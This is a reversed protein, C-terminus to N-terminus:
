QMSDFDVRCPVKHRLIVYQDIITLNHVELFCLLVVNLSTSFESRLGWGNGHVRPDSTMSHFLVKCPVNSRLVFVKQDTTTLIDVELFIQLLFVM